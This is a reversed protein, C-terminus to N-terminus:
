NDYSVLAALAPPLIEGAPRHICLDAVSDLPTPDINIIVLKAGALKAHYPLNAAPYVVLSSGIVLMLDCTQADRTADEVVDVPLMEGFLVVDPRIVGNCKVCHPPLQTELRERVEDLHYPAHCEFCYFKTTNGHLELVRDSGAKQHLGDINQTIVSFVKGSHQLDAVAIHASSPEASSILDMRVEKFFTWYYSPDSRFYEISAYKDPDYQSWTGGAGRYTPIGSEASIGAGTFVAVRSAAAILAVLAEVEGSLEDSDGVPHVGGNSSVM